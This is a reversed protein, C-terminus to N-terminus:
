RGPLVARRTAAVDTQELTGRGGLEDVDSRSSPLSHPRAVQVGAELLAVFAEDLIDREREISQRDEKPLEGSQRDHRARETSAREAEEHGDKESEKKDSM